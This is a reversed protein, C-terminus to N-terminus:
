VPQRYPVPVTSSTAIALLKREPSLLQAELFVVRKGWRLVRAEALVPGPGVRELFKVSIDLSAVNFEAGSHAVAAFAIASDMWATVFGGQVITGNTHCFEPRANFELLARGPRTGYEILRYGGLSEMLAKTPTFGPIAPETM